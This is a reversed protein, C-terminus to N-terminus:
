TVPPPRLGLGQRADRRRRRDPGRVTDRWSTPWSAAATSRFLTTRSTCGGSPVCPDAAVEGAPVLSHGWSDDVRHLAGTSAAGGLAVEHLRVNALDNAEVNTLLVAVNDAAAEVAQVAGDPPTSPPSCRSSAIHDGVDLVVDARGVEYGLALFLPERYAAAIVVEDVTSPRVLM